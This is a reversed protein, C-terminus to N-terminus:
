GEARAQAAIQPHRVCIAEIDVIRQREAAVAAAVATDGGPPPQPPTQSAQAQVAPAPQAPPTPPPAAPASPQSAQVTPAAAKMATEEAALSSKITDLHAIIEADSKDGLSYKAKLYARLQETLM